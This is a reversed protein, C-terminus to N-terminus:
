IQGAGGPRAGAGPPGGGGGSSGAIVPIGSYFTSSGASALNRQGGRAGAKHMLARLWNSEIRKEARAGGRRVDSIRMLFVCYHRADRELRQEFDVPCACRQVAHSM